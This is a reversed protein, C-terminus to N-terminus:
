LQGGALKRTSNGAALKYPVIIREPQWEDPETSKRILREVAIGGMKEYDIVFMTFDPSVGNCVLSLDQPIRLGKEDMARKVGSFLTSGRLCVMGTPLPTTGALFNKM